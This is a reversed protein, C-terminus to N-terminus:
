QERSEDTVKSDHELNVRSPIRANAHHLFSCDIQIGEDTSTIQLSHKSSHERSEDTVKSDPDLNFRILLPANEPHLDNCDMQIGEDTSTRQSTHKM